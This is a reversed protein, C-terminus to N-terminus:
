CIGQANGPISRIPGNIESVVWSMGKGDPSRDAVEEKEPSIRQSIISTLDKTGSRVEDQIDGKGTKSTRDGRSRFWLGDSSCEECNIRPRIVQEKAIRDISQRISVSRPIKRDETMPKTKM